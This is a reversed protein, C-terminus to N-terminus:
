YLVDSAGANAEHDSGAMLVDLDLQDDASPARIGNNLLVAAGPDNSLKGIRSVPIRSVPLAASARARSRLSPSPM